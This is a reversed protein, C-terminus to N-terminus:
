RRETPRPGIAWYLWGELIKIVLILLFLGIAAGFVLLIGNLIM